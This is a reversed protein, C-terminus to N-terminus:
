NKKTLWKDGKKNFKGGIFSFLILVGTVMIIGYFLNYLLLGFATKFGYEKTFSLFKKITYIVGIVCPLVIYSEVNELNGNNGVFLIVLILTLASGISYGVFFPKQNHKERFTREFFDVWLYLVIVGIILAVVEM